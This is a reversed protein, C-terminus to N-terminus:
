ALLKQSRGGEVPYGPWNSVGPFQCVTSLGGFPCDTHAPSSVSPMHVPQCNHWTDIGLFRRQTWYAKSSKSGSLQLYKQDSNIKFFQKWIKTDVGAQLADMFKNQLLLQTPLIFLM